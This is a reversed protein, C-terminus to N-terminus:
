YSGRRDRGGGGYGGGGRRDGGGGGYGGRGGGGGGGYGGGGGGGGYGGGAPRPERPKAENVTLPRGQFDANNLAAIAANAEEANPMEVFGFGRSRGTQKDKVVQAKGVAGYTSFLETLQEPTCSWALNGVYINVM